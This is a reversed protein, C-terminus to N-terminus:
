LSSIRVKRYVLMNPSEDAVGNSTQGYNNGQAMDGCVHDVRRRFTAARPAKKGAAPHPPTLARGSEDGGRPCLARVARAGGSGGESRKAGPSESWSRARSRSARGTRA